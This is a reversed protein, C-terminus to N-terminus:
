RRPRFIFGKSDTAGPCGPAEPNRLCRRRRRSRRRMEIRDPLLELRQAELEKVTLEEGTTHVTTKEDMGQMEERHWLIHATPM